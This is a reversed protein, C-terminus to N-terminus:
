ESRFGPGLRPGVPRSTPRGGGDADAEAGRGQRNDGRGPVSVRGGTAGMAAEERRWNLHVKEPLAQKSVGNVCTHM